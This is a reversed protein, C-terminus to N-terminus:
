HFKMSPCLVSRVCFKSSFSVETKEFFFLDSRDRFLWKQWLFAVETVFYKAIKWLQWADTFLVSRVCWFVTRDNWFTGLATWLSSHFRPYCLLSMFWIVCIRNNSTVEYYWGNFVHNFKRFPTSTTRTQELWTEIYIQYLCSITM